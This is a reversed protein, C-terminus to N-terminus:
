FTMAYGEKNRYKEEPYHKWATVQNSRSVMGVDRSTKTSVNKSEKIPLIISQISIICLYHM